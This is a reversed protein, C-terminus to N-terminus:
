VPKALRFLAPLALLERALAFSAYAAIWIVFPNNTGLTFAWAFAGISTVWLLAVAIKGHWSSVLIRRIEIATSAERFQVSFVSLASRQLLGAACGSAFSVFVLPFAQQWTLSIAIAFSSAWLLVLIINTRPTLSKHM